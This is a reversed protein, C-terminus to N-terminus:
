SNEIVKMRAIMENNQLKIRENKENKAMYSSNIENYQMKIKDLSTDDRYPTNLTESQSYNTKIDKGNSSSSTSEQVKDYTCLPSLKSSSISM